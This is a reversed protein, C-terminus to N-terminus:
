HGKLSVTPSCASGHGAVGDFVPVLSLRCDGTQHLSASTRWKPTHSESVRVCGLWQEVVRGQVVRFPCSLRTLWGGPGTTMLSRTVPSSLRTASIVM